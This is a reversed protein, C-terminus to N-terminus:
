VDLEYDFRCLVDVRFYAVENGALDASINSWKSRKDELLTFSIFVLKSIRYHFYILSVEKSRQM